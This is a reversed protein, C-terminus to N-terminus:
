FTEGRACTVVGICSVIDDLSDDSSEHFITSARTGGGGRGRRRRRRGEVRTPCARVKISCCPLPSRTGSEGLAGITYLWLDRTTRFVAPCTLALPRELHLTRYSYRHLRDATRSILQRTPSITISVHILCAPATSVLRASKPCGKPLCTDDHFFLMSTRGQEPVNSAFECEAMELGDVIHRRNITQARCTDEHHM